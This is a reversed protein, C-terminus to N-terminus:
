YAGTFKGPEGKWEERFGVPVAFQV